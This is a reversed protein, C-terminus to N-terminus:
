VKKWTNNTKIYLNGDPGPKLVVDLSQRPETSGVSFSGDANLRMREKPESDYSNVFTINSGNNELKDVLDKSLSSAQAPVSAGAIIAGLLGGRKLFNRRDM